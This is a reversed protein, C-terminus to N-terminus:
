NKLTVIEIDDRFVFYCSDRWRVEVTRDNFGDGCIQLEAGQPLQMITGLRRKGNEAALVPIASIRATAVRAEAPPYYHPVFVAESNLM